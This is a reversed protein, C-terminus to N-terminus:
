DFNFFFFINVEEVFKLVEYYKLEKIAVKRYSCPWDACKIRGFGGEEFNTVNRFESYDYLQIFRNNIANTIWESM